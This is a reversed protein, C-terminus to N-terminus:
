VTGSIHCTVSSIKIKWIPSNKAGKGGERGLFDVNWLFSFFVHLYWWKVHTYWLHLNSSTHKRLYPACCASLCVSLHIFFTVSTPAGGLFSVYNTLPNWGERKLAGWGGRSGTQEGDKFDKNRRGEKRNWGRKLYKLCNGGGEHLGRRGQDLWGGKEPKFLYWFPSKVLRM